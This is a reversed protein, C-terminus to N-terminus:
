EEPEPSFEADLIEPEPSILPAEGEPLAAQGPPLAEQPTHASLWAEPTKPGPIFLVGGTHQVEMQQKPAYREPDTAKLEALILPIPYSKETAVIEDKFKGGLIPREVGNFVLDHQHARLKDRFGAEAEDCALAFEPDSDMHGRATSLHVGAAIAADKERGHQQLALLFIAKAQDDFVGTKAARVEKRWTSFDMARAGEPPPSTLSDKLPLETDSTKLHKLADRVKTLGKHESPHPLDKQLALLMGALQDRPADRLAMLFWDILTDKTAAERVSLFETLLPNDEPRM